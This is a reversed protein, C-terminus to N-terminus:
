NRRRILIFAVALRLAAALLLTATMGVLNAILPGIMGCLLIAANNALNYWALHPARDDVPIRELIFNVLGGSIMAWGLGGIVAHLLYIWTQFSYTFLVLTGTVVLVGYGTMRRFGWRAALQRVQLSGLFHAIWFLASGQSITADRLALTEVQYKPVVPNILFVAIQYLFILVLLRGFSGRIVDLRLTQLRSARVAARDSQALEQRAEASIVEPPAETEVAPPRILWLHVASMMAGLAGIAFVIAYGTAFPLTDLLVGVILATAMTTISFLANRTGAVQGRWEPPVVEAFFANFAIAIITGPINMVLTIGLIMWIQTEAPLLLPLPIIAFYFVRMAMASWRTAHATKSRRILEGAPFTFLLNVIAPSATLLGLQFTSAGLRSAYVALFILLSGNLMGWWAIDLYLHLFNRRHEAPVPQSSWFFRRLTLM